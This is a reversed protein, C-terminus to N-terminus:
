QEQVLRILCKCLFKKWAKGLYTVKALAPTPQSTSIDKLLAGNLRHAITLKDM